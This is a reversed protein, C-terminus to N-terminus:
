FRWGIRGGYVLKPSGLRKLLTGDDAELDNPAPNDLLGANYSASGSIVVNGLVYSVDLDGILDSDGLATVTADVEVNGRRASFAASFPSTGGGTEYDQEIADFLIALSWNDGGAEGDRYGLGAKASVTVVEVGRFLKGPDRTQYEYPLVTQDYAGVVSGFWGNEGIAYRRAVRADVSTGQGSCSGNPGTEVRLHMPTDPNDRDYDIGGRGIGTGCEVNGTAIFATFTTLDPPMNSANDDAFAVTAALMASAALARTITNM